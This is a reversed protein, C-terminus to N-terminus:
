LTYKAFNDVLYSLPLDKALNQLKRERNERYASDKETSYSRMKM